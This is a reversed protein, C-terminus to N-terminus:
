VGMVCVYCGGYIGRCGAFVGEVEAVIRAEWGWSAPSAAIARVVVVKGAGARM